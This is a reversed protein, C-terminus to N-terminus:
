SPSKDQETIATKQPTTLAAEPTAPNLWDAITARVAQLDEDEAVFYWLSHPGMRQGEGKLTYSQIRHGTQLFQKALVTMSEPPLDTRFNEGVIDLIVPINDWQKMSAAKRMLAELFQRNRETRSMDGGADERYRVFNLAEQGTYSEKNATVTFKEHDAGKNVIDETIPLSVGGLTDVVEVFGQFNISAYHDVQAELLNAVSNVAMEAGGFAYAHTIKDPEDRGVMETYTDRPISLMLVNGDQPRVVTYILTDSRGRTEGPRADVGMLLMSFPKQVEPPKVPKPRDKLPEYSNALSEEVKNSLFLDYGLAALAGRNAYIIGSGVVLVMFSAILIIKLRRYDRM